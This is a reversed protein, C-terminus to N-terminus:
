RASPMANSRIPWSSSASFSTGPIQSTTFPSSDCVYQLLSRGGMPILHQLLALSADVILQRGPCQTRWWAQVPFAPTFCNVKVTSVTTSGCALPNWLIGLLLIVTALITLYGTHLVPVRM